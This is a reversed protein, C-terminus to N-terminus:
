GAVAGLHLDGLLGLTALAVKAIQHLLAPARDYEHDVFRVIEVVLRQGAQLPKHLHDGVGAYEQGDEQDAM